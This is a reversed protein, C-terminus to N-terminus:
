IAIEAELINDSSVSATMINEETIAEGKLCATLFGQNMILVRDCLGILELMDSTTLIVAVGQDALQRILLYIQQKTAVDVGKTPELLVIVRPKFILWKGLVVKQMNGGSLSQVLQRPSSIKISLSEIMQQTVDSEAKKQIVGIKKRRDITAAALNELVSLILFVGEENRNEPVLAIGHQMAQRPNHIHIPQDHITIEMPDCGGKGFIAQLLEMQGQGQLGGIATVEGKHVSFAVRTGRSRLMGDFTFLEPLVEQADPKPPFIESMERGVMSSILRHHDFASTPETTVVKGDKMVTIRDSISLVEELRHSIFVIGKGRQKLDQLITFLIKVEDLSLPATPEDFIILESEQALVKGIEVMQRLAMPLSGVLIDPNIDVSIEKLVARCIEHIKKWSILRSKGSPWVGLVINEGVSLEPLLSLEQYVVGIGARRAQAYNSFIVEKGGLLIEGRDPKYVGALVKMLTSKGAGNEGVLGHIEGAYCSFNVGAVARTGLFSKEIGRTEILPAIVQEGMLREM